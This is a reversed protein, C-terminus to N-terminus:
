FDDKHRLWYLRWRMFEVEVADISYDLFPLYFNVANRISDLCIDHEVCVSPILFQMKICDVLDSPFRENLQELVIDIFPLFFSRRYFQLSSVAPPNARNAQQNVIRPMPTSEGYLGEALRFLGVFIEENDKFAQIM